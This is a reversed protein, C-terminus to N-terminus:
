LYLIAYTRGRCKKRKVKSRNRKVTKGELVWEAQSVTDRTGRRQMDEQCVQVLASGLRADALVAATHVCHAAVAALTTFSELGAGCAGLTNTLVQWSPVCLSVCLWVYAKEIVHMIAMFLDTVRLDAHKHHNEFIHTM